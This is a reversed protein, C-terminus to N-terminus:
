RRKQGIDDKVVQIFLELASAVTKHTIGVVKQYEHFAPSGGFPDHGADLAKDFALEFELHVHGFALNGWGVLGSKEAESELTLFNTPRILRELRELVAQALQGASAPEDGHLVSELLQSLIEPAPHVVKAYRLIVTRERFDIVPKSPSHAHAVPFLPTVSTRFDAVKEFESGELSCRYQRRDAAFARPM